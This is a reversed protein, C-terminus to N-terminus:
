ALATILQAPATFLKAPANFAMRVSFTFAHGVSWGVSLCLSRYTANGVVFLLLVRLLSLLLLSLLTADLFVNM